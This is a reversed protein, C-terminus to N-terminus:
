LNFWEAMGNISAMIGNHAADFLSSLGLCILMVLMLPIIAITFIFDKIITANDKM